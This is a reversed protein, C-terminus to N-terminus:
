GTDPTVNSGSTRREPLVAFTAAAVVSLGALLLFAEAFLNADAMAGVVTSGFAGIVFFGTRIAGWATGRIAAPLIDIVYANTLPAIAPRAGMVTVALALPLVGSLFPLAVLPVTGVLVIAVLVRSYGFREALAGVTSQGVASSVFLLGFLVGATGEGLGKAEILYTTLFATLGQFTFLMFTVGSSALVVRRSTIAERVARTRARLGPGSECSGGDTQARTPEGSEESAADPVTSSLAVGVFLFAPVTAGIALRWGVDAAVAAAVAPLFASGISGTALVVGFAIGDNDPFTRSLVTGRSPGYLGSGIGFVVTAALFVGFTPSLAYGTLGAGGVLVSAALLRREGVRDILAGAPFQMGGYVVWLLTIAAGATANSIGFDGTIFPLLAPVVFRLGLVLFWGFAVAM